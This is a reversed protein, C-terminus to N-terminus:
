SSIKRGEGDLLNRVTGFHNFSMVRSVVVNLVNQVTKGGVDHIEVGGDWVFDRGYVGQWIESDLNMM